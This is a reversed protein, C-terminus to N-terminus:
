SLLLPHKCIKDILLRSTILNGHFYTKDPYWSQSFSEFDGKERQNLVFFRRSQTYGQGHPYEPSGTFGQVQEKRRIM